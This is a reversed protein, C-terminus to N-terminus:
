IRRACLRERRAARPEDVRPARVLLRREVLGGHLAALGRGPYEQLRASVQALAFDVDDLLIQARGNNTGVVHLTVYTVGDDVWRANEPYGDQRVVGM